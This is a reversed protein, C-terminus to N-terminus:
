RMLSFHELLYQLSVTLWAAMIGFGYGLPALKLWAAVLQMPFAM